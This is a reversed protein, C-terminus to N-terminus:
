LLYLGKRLGLPVRHSPAPRPPFLAAQCWPVRHFTTSMCLYNVTTYLSGYLALPQEGLPVGAALRSPERPTSSGSLAWPATRWTWPVTARGSNSATAWGFRKEQVREVAFARRQKPNIVRVLHSRELELRLLNKREDISIVRAREGADIGDGRRIFRLVDGDSFSSARRKQEATLDQKVMVPVKLSKQEVQGAEILAERIRRNLDVREANSPAIVVGRGGDAM